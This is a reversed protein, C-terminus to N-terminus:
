EGDENRNSSVTEGEIECGQDALFSSIRQAADLIDKEYVHNYRDFIKDSVHGSISKIRKRDIGARRANTVFSHRLDHFRLGELGAEKTARNFFWWTKKIREGDRLFVFDDPGSDDNRNAKIMRILYESM